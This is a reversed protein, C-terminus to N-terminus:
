LDHKFKQRSSFNLQPNKRLVLRRFFLVEDFSLPVLEKIIFLVLNEEFQKKIIVV